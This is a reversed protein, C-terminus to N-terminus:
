GVQVLQFEQLIVLMMEVLGHGYPFVMLFVQLVMENYRHLHQFMVQNGGRQRYALLIKKEHESSFGAARGLREERKTARNKIKKISCM